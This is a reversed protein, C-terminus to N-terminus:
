RVMLELAADQARADGVRIALGPSVVHPFRALPWHLFPSCRWPLRPRRLEVQFM